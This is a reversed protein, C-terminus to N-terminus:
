MSRSSVLKGIVASTEQYSSVKQHAIRLTASGAEKYLLRLRFKLVAGAVGVEFKDLRLCFENKLSKRKRQM